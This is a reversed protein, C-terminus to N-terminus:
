QWHVTCCRSGFSISRLTDESSHSRREGSSGFDRGPADTVVSTKTAVAAPAVAAAHTNPGSAKLLAKAAAAAAASDTAAQPALAKATGAASQPPTM